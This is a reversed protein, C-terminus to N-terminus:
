SKFHTWKEDVKEDLICLLQLLHVHFTSTLQLCMASCCNYNCFENIQIITEDITVFM